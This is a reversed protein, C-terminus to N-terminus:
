LRSVDDQLYEADKKLWICVSNISLQYFLFALCDNCALHVITCNECTGIFIHVM